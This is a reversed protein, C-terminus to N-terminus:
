NMSSSTTELNHSVGIDQFTLRNGSRPKQELHLLVGLVELLKGVGGQLRPRDLLADDVVRCTRLPKDGQSAEPSRVLPHARICSRPCERISGTIRTTKTHLVDDKSESLPRPRAEHALM